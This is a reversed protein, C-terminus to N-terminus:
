SVKLQRTIDEVPEAGNEFGMPMVWARERALQVKAFANMTRSIENSLTQQGRAHGAEIMLTAARRMHRTATLIAAPDSAAANLVDHAIAIEAGHDGDGGLLAVLQEALDLHRTLEDTDFAFFLPLRDALIGLFGIALNLQEQAVQNEPDVAPLVVDRLTKAVAPLLFEPRLEM